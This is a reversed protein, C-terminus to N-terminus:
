RTETMGFVIFYQEPLFDFEQRVKWGAATLDAVLTAAPLHEEPPPGWPREEWSRPIYDIVVLRGGPALGARLKEAYAVRDAIHHFVDVMLITDIAGAPLSPDDAPVRQVEVNDIDGDRLRQDLYDLMEQNIDTALVSGTPGVAGAVRVTFYGSGAGVDAVREGPAFDLAKMVADPKQFEAREERELMGIYQEIWRGRAMTRFRTDQQYAAFAEDAFLRRFDSWGADLTIELWEYLEDDHGLLAHLRTVNYLNELHVPQLVANMQEALDLAAAHDGQAEAQAYAQALHAYGALPDQNSAAKQASAAPGACILGLLLWALLLGNSAGPRWRDPRHKRSLNRRRLHGPM